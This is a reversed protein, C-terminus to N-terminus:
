ELLELEKEANICEDAQHGHFQSEFIKLQAKKGDYWHIRQMAEKKKRKALPIRFRLLNSLRQKWSKLEKPDGGVIDCDTEASDTSIPRWMSPRAVTIHPITPGDLNPLKQHLFKKDPDQFCAIIRRAQLVKRAKIWNQQARMRTQRRESRAAARAM